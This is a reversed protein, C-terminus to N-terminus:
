PPCVRVKHRLMCSFLLLTQLVYQSFTAVSSFVSVRLTKNDKIEAALAVAGEDGIGNQSLVLERLSGSKACGAVLAAGGAGRFKNGSLDVTELQGNTEFAGGKVCLTSPLTLSTSCRVCPTSLAYITSFPCTAMCFVHFALALYSLFIRFLPPSGVLHRALGLNWDATRSIFRQSRVTSLYPTPM